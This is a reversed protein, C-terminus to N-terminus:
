NEVEVSSFVAQGTVIVTPAILGNTTRPPITKDEVSGFVGSAQITIMWTDPVRMKTSGFVCNVDVTVPKENAIIQSYRLDLEVSGFVCDIQGGLFNPTEVRRKISGAVTHEDLVNDSIPVPEQPLGVKAKPRREGGEIARVLAMFGLAILLLALLWSDDRTHLRLVGLNLLVGLVGFVILLVGWYRRTMSGACSLVSVGWAVMLLPSYAWINRLRLVGVNDLFLCVGALILVVAFFFRGAPSRGCGSMRAERRLQRRQERWDRRDDVEFNDQM